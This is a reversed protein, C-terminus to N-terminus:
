SRREVAETAAHGSDHRELQDILEAIVPPTLPTARIQSGVPGLADAIANAIAAPAGITGGEAMGKFGGPVTPDPSEIHWIRIRPALERATPVQYDLLSSTALHGGDDYVIEEHLAGALGQVIGGRIQGDVIGPNIIVGCDHVVVYDLIEV